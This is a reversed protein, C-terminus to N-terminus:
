DPSHQSREVWDHFVELLEDRVQPQITEEPLSGVLEITHKMQELYAACIKCRAIHAEFQARDGESLAGELYQTVLEVLQQCTLSGTTM